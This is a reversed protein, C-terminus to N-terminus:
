NIKGTSRTGLVQSKSGGPNNALIITTLMRQIMHGAVDFSLNCVQNSLYQQAKLPKSLGVFLSEARGPLLNSCKGKFEIQLEFGTKLVPNDFM